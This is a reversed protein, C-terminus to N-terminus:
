PRLVYSTLNWKEYIRRPAKKVGEQVDRSMKEYFVEGVYGM